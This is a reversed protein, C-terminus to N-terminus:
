QYIRIKSKIEATRSLIELNNDIDAEKMNPTIFALENDPRGQREIYMLKGFM